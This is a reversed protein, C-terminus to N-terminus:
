EKYKKVDIFIKELEPKKDFCFSFDKIIKKILFLSLCIKNEIEYNNLTSENNYLEKTINQLHSQIFYDVINKSSTSFHRNNKELYLNKRKESIIGADEFLFTDIDKCALNQVELKQLIKFLTDLSCLSYDFFPRETTQKVYNENFYQDDIKVSSRTQFFNAEIHDKLLNEIEISDEQTFEKHYHQFRSPFKLIIDIL